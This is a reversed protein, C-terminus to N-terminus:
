AVLKVVENAITKAANSRALSKINRSLTEREEKVELLKLTKEALQKIADVDKLLIAADKEVLAEANLMQHDEAVNPSPILITAKGTLELEAISLAGARSIVVDAVAYALDMEKLFDVMKIRESNQVSVRSKMEDFYFGGTQWIVQIKEKDFKELNALMAENLTRAGLSGGV